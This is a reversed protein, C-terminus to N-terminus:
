LAELQKLIDEESLNGLREEQRKALLDLLKRKQQAKYVAAAKTANEEQKIGIIDKLIELRLEDAEREPTVKPGSSVFSTVEPTVKPGISVFSTVVPTDLRAFTDMAITDLSVKTAVTTTLPLDWLDEVSLSGIRTNFRLKLRSAKLYTSM